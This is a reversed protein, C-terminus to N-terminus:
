AGNGSLTMKRARECHFMRLEAASRARVYHARDGFYNAEDEVYVGVGCWEDVCRGGERTSGLSLSPTNKSTGSPSSANSINSSYSNISSYHTFAREEQSALALQPRYSFLNPHPPPLARLPALTPLPRSCPSISDELSQHVIRAKNARVHSSPALAQLRGRQWVSVALALACVTCAVASGRMASRFARFKSDLALLRSTRTTSLICCSNLARSAHRRRPRLDRDLVQLNSLPLNFASFISIGGLVHRILLFPVTWLHVARLILSLRGFGLQACWTLLFSALIEM